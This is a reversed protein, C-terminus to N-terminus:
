KEGGDLAALLMLAAEQVIQTCSIPGNVLDACCTSGFREIFRQRFDAMLTYCQHKDAKPNTRGHLSGIVLAGGSLAGCIEQHTSGFGGGFGTALRCMSPDHDDIAAKGVTLIITEACNHGSDMLRQVERTIHDSKESM